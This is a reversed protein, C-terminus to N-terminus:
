RGRSLQYKDIWILNTQLFIPIKEFNGQNKKKFMNPNIERSLQTMTSCHILFCAVPVLFTMEIVDLSRCQPFSKLSSRHGSYM